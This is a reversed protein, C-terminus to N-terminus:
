FEQAYNNVSDIFEESLDARIAMQIPDVFDFGLINVFPLDFVNYDDTYLSQQLNSKKSKRMQLKTLNQMNM